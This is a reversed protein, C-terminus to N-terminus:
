IGVRIIMENSQGILFIMDNRRSGCQTSKAPSEFPTSQGIHHSKVLHHRQLLMKSQVNQVTLTSFLSFVFVNQIRHTRVLRNVYDFGMQRSIQVLM